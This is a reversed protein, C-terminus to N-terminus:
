NDFANGIKFALWSIKYGVSVTQPTPQSAVSLSATDFTKANFFRISLLLKTTKTLESSINFCYIGSIGYTASLVRFEVSLGVVM